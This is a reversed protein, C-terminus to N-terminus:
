YEDHLTMNPKWTGPYLYPTYIQCVNSLCNILALAAARKTAPRPLVSFNNTIAQRSQSGNQSVTQSIGLYCSTDPM